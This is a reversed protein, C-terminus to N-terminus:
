QEMYRTPWIDRPERDLANAIIMEGKPWHRNMANSLTGPALGANVSLQRLSLSRKKLAAVIDARHMDSVSKYLTDERDM